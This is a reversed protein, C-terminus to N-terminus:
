LPTTRMPFVHCIASLIVTNIMNEENRRKRMPDLIITFNLEIIDPFMIGNPFVLDVFGGQDETADAVIITVDAVTYNTSLTELDVGTFDDLIIRLHAPFAEAKSTNDHKIITSIPVRSFEHIPEVVEDSTTEIVIKARFTDRREDMTEKRLVTTSMAAYETRTIINDGIM